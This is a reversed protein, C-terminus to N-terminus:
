YEISQALPVQFVTLIPLGSNKSHKGQGINGLYNFSYVNLQEFGTRVDGSGNQVPYITVMIEGTVHDSIKRPQLTLSQSTKVKYDLSIQVHGRFADKRGADFLYVKLLPLDEYVDSGMILISFTSWNSVRVNGHGGEV